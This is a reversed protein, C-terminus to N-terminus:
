KLLIAGEEVHISCGEEMTTIEETLKGIQVDLFPYLKECRIKGKSKKDLAQSTTRLDATLAERKESYLDRQEVLQDLLAKERDSIRAGKKRLSTISDWLMELTSQVKALEERIQEWAEPIQPPYGVSFRSRGGALNGVRLCLISDGARILSDVIMGRGSMVYVTGGCRITSNSITETIVSTGARIETWEVVPSQVQCGASIYTKGSVGYIGQQVRVTGGTSIVRGQGIKGNIVIDGSAEIDVEGDVNGGIYLNGSIHLAGQFQELDGDIIKQEHICFRDNEIYLIGDASAMLAQGDRDLATNEGQPIHASVAQPCPLVQGTVDMGDTGARPHQILCIATGKRIPQLQVDQSFDVQSGSQVELRMNKRRQFLETVKGDEGALPPKGRAVPFLRLYGLAFERQIEEQLINYNIGEYHLDGLFEELTIEEGGNEPPLLCAYACMRDQALFFRAEARMPQMEDLAKKNRSKCAAKLVWIFDDVIKGDDPYRAKVERGAADLLSFMKRYPTPHFSKREQEGAERSVFRDFISVKMEQRKRFREYPHGSEALRFLGSRYTVTWITDNRHLIPM